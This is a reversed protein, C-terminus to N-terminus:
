KQNMYAILQETIDFVPKGFVIVPVSEGLTIVQKNFVLDYGMVNAYERIKEFVENMIEQIKPQYESKLLNEYETKKSLIEKQKALIEEQPRNEEQMKKLEEEMEKLKNQYFSFDRKYKENLEQWKYYSETVKKIDVYAVRLSSGTSSQSILLTTLLIGVLVLPLFFKKM